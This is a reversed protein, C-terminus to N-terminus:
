ETKFRKIQDDLNKVSSVLSTSADTISSVCSLNSESISAIELVHDIIIQTDEGVVRINALTGNVTQSMNTMVSTMSEVNEGFSQAKTSMAEMSGVNRNMEESADVIAQIIVSITANIETLSKQTREALKRVEDAVVAFGRGHEGARAAEIAANLALLNTQDAIDSIVTLVDKVQAANDNLSMLKHTLEVQKQANEQSLSIVEKTERGVTKLESEVASIQHESEKAQDM